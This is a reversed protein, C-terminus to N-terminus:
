GVYRRPLRAGMRTVIEYGVTDDWGAWEEATPEGSGGPGFVIVDAGAEIPADGVNVICQDMAIRGVIPFREGAILVQAGRATRPLGDAYGLPLLALSTEEDARWTLGYSAGHGPAVRKVHSIRARVTMAPRFELGSPWPPGIRPGPTVGYVIIGARVLDFHMDPRTIIAGSSSLHRVEPTAGLSEATALAEQFAALQEDNAPHDPEDACALHSWIGVVEIADGHSLAQRVLDSWQTPSSGGRGLGTDIKLHVRARRGISRAASAIEEVAWSAGASLDIDREICAAIGPDGPVILWALVRGEDGADRLALAEDPLAVGLWPAGAERAARAVPIAGHGYADAKVVVMAEAGAVAAAVTRVNHRVADLDIVAEARENSGTTTM